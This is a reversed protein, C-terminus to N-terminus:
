KEIGEPRANHERMAMDIADRMSHLNTIVFRTPLQVNGISNSPDALWDMRAEDKRLRRIENAARQELADPEGERISDLEDTINM